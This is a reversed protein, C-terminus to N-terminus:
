LLLGFMLNTRKWYEMSGQQLRQYKPKEVSLRTRLKTELGQLGDEDAIDSSKLFLGLVLVDFLSQMLIDDGDANRTPSTPALEGVGNPAEEEGSVNNDKGSNGDVEKKDLDRSTIVDSWLSGIDARLQKKLGHVATPSWFDSGMGAMISTLSHVFKFMSPSPQVPLAPEGEWLLRGIVRKQHFSKTLLKIPEAITSRILFEQLQPITSLGFSKLGGLEPLDARIERLIRLVFVTLATQRTDDEYSSVIMQLKDHLSKFATVLTSELHQKLMGPDESSLLDQRDALSDEDEINEVDDIWRQKRIQDITETVEQILHRWTRYSNVVKSVADNRGHNRDLIASKFRGAGNSIEMDLMQTAWLGHQQDSASTSWRALEGEVETGVIHLKTVRSELLDLLHRNVLDRLGDLLIESDFGKAKGGERIWVEFTKTRLEVVSKFDLVRQITQKFGHLLTESSNKAWGKLMDRATPGDLDDHRIYPTFNLIVEGFWRECVNIRLGELGRVDANGLLPRAKHEALANALRKPVLAQVDLLTKTYLNIAAVVGKQNHEKDFHEQGENEFIFTLAAGRARLFHLMIDKAGSSTALSYACLAQLLGERGTDQDVRELKREVARLFRRRLSTLKRRLEEIEAAQAAEDSNKGTSDDLSKLLLRSLVLVKAATVLKSGVTYHVTTEDKGRLLRGVVVTCNEVMRMRARKGFEIDEDEDYGYGMTALGGVKTGIQSRGCGKGVSALLEEAHSIERRMKVITEATGMLQRYSGGVLTRLRANKEELQTQISKHLHRVTPLPHHFLEDATTLSILEPTAM